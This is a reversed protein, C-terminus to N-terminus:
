RQKSAVVPMRQKKIMDVIVQDEANAWRSKEVPGIAYGILGGVFAGALAGAAGICGAKFLNSTFPLCGHICGWEPDDLIDLTDGKKYAIVAATVGGVVAGLSAGALVPWRRPLKKEANLYERTFEVEQKTIPLDLFDYDIINWKNDFAERSGKIEEYNNIYDGLIEIGRLDKIVSILTDGTTAIRVVYGGGSIARFVASEYQYTMPPLYIKPLFLNFYEREQADIVEGVRESIIIQHVLDYKQETPRSPSHICNALLLSIMVLSLICKM